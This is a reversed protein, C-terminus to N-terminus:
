WEKKWDGNQEYEQWNKNFSFTAATAYGFAIITWYWRFQHAVMITYLSYIILIVLGSLACARSKLLFIGVALGILILSVAITAHMIKDVDIAYQEGLGFEETLNNISEIQHKFTQLFFSTRVWDFIACAIIVISSIIIRDRDKRNRPAEFFEKKTMKRPHSEPNYSDMTNSPGGYNYSSGINSGYQGPNNTNAGYSDVGSNDYYSNGNNVSDSPTNMSPTNGFIGDGEFDFEQEPNFYGNNSVGNDQPTISPQVNEEKTETPEQPKLQM